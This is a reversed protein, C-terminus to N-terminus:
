DAGRCGFEGIANDADIGINIMYSTDYGLNRCNQIAQNQVEVPPAILTSEGIPWVFSLITEQSQPEEQQSEPEASLMDTADQQACGGLIGCSVVMVIGAEILSIM